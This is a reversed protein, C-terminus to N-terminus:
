WSAELNRFSLILAPIIVALVAVAMAAVGVRFLKMKQVTICSKVSVQVALDELYEPRLDEGDPYYRGRLEAKLTRIPVTAIDGFYFSIRIIHGPGDAEEFQTPEVSAPVVSSVVDCSVSCTNIAGPM